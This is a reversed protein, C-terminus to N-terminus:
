PKGHTGVDVFRPATWIVARTSRVVHFRLLRSWAMCQGTTRAQLWRKLGNPENQTEVYYRHYTGRRRNCYKPLLNECKLNAVVTTHWKEPKSAYKDAYGRCVDANRLPDFCIVNVSSVSFVSLLLNHPVIWQDDAPLRRRLAVRNTSECHCQYPMELWPFFFM